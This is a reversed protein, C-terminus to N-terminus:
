SVSSWIVSIVIMGGAIIYYEWVPNHLFWEKFYHGSGDIYYELRANSFPPLSLLDARLDKLSRRKLPKYEDVDGDASITFLAGDEQYSPLKLGHKEYTVQRANRWYENVNLSKTAPPMVWVTHSLKEAAKIYGIEWQTGARDSPLLTIQDAADILTSVNERWSAEEAQIRGAGFHEGPVGFGVLPAYPELAEALMREIDIIQDREYFEPTGLTRMLPNRYRIAATSTFPRLYLAFPKQQDSKPALLARALLAAARESRDKDGRRQDRRQLVLSVFLAIFGVILFMSLRSAIDSASMQLRSQDLEIILRFIWYGVAFSVIMISIRHRFLMALAAGVLSVLFFNLASVALLRLAFDFSQLLSYAALYSLIKAILGPRFTNSARTHHTDTM